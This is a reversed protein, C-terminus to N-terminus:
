DEILINIEESLNIRITKFFKSPKTIRTNKYYKLHPSKLIYIFGKYVKPLYPSHYMCTNMRDRIFTNWAKTTTDPYISHLIEAIETNMLYQSIIYYLKIVKDKAQELNNAYTDTGFILSEDIFSKSAYKKDYQEPTLRQKDLVKAVGITNCKEHRAIRIIRREFQFDNLYNEPIYQM